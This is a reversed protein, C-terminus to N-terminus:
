FICIYWRINIVYLTAYAYFSHTGSKAESKYIYPLEELTPKGYYCILNFDIAIKLSITM